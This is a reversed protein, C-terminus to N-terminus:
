RTGAAKIIRTTPVAAQQTTVVGQRHRQGGATDRSIITAVRWARAPRSAPPRAPATISAPPLGSVATQATTASWRSGLKRLEQFNPAM